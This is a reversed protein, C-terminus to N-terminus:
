VRKAVVAAVTAVPAIIHFALKLTNPNTDTNTDTDLDTNTHIMKLKMRMKVKMKMMVLTITVTMTISLTMWMAEKTTMISTSTLAKHNKTGSNTNTDDRFKANFRKQKVM